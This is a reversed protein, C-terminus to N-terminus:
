AERAESAAVRLAVDGDFRVSVPTGVPLRAAEAVQLSVWWDRPAGPHSVSVMTRDGLYRSGSVVARSESDEVIHLFEPRVFVADLEEGPGDHAELPIESGGRWSRPVVFENITGVFRAVFPTAPSSYVEEPVAHQEVVGSNLVAVKDAIVLAESQDHTIFMTTTGATKQVRRIEDRLNRRVSADLASLPEDLLLVRPEIALARALAVRQQQGGSLEHPYREAYGPLGCMELLEETRKRRAAAPRRRIRQGYDINGGVTLNPFLSLGQFVIGMNRKEAPTRLISKGGVAVDGSDPQEFGALLRLTTTKGCGSPGLVTLLEGPDITFDLDTLVRLGDGYSKSVHSFSVSVADGAGAAEEGAEAAHHITTTSM